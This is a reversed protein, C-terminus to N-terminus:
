ILQFNSSCYFGRKSPRKARPFHIYCPLEPYVTFRPALNNLKPRVNFWSYPLLSSPVTFRPGTFPSKVTYIEIILRILGYSLISIILTSQGTMLCSKQYNPFLTLNQIRIIIIFTVVSYELTTQIVIVSLLLNVYLWLSMLGNYINSKKIYRWFM